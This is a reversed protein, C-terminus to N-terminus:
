AIQINLYKKMFHAKGEAPENLTHPTSRRMEVGRTARCIKMLKIPGCTFVSESRNENEGGIHFSMSKDTRIMLASVKWGGGLFAKRRLLISQSRGGVKADKRGRTVARSSNYLRRCRYYGGGARL